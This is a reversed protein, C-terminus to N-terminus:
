KILHKHASTTAYDSSIWAFNPLSVVNVDNGATSFNKRTVAVNASHLQLSDLHL